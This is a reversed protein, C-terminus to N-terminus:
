DHIHEIFCGYSGYYLDRMTRQGLKVFKFVSNLTFLKRKIILIVM